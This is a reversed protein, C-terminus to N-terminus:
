FNNFSLLNRGFIRVFYLNTWLKERYITNLYLRLLERTCYIYFFFSPLSSIPGSHESRTPFKNDTKCSPM